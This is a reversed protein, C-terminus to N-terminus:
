YSTMTVLADFSPLHTPMKSVFLKMQNSCTRGQKMYLANCIYDEYFTNDDKRINYKKHKNTAQEDEVELSTRGKM